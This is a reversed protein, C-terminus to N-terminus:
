GLCGANFLEVLADFIQPARLTHAGIRANIELLYVQGHEDRRIDIDMPGTLGIARAAQQALESVDPANVPVLDLANGVKGERLATKEFVQTAMLQHPADPHFVQLVDYETGPMFVQWLLEARQEAPLQDASEYVAVGRGGRGVRPRCVKPFSLRAVAADSAAGLASDPVAIHRERLYHATDWKDDCIRVAQPAGMYIAVGQRRIAPAHDAMLVLEESVTPFLWRIRQTNIIKQLEPLYAPDKAAPVVFFHDADHAVDLMDVATVLFGRAKLATVAAVGSPGGVGTVLVHNQM